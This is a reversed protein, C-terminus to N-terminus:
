SESDTIQKTLIADEMVPQSFDFVEGTKIDCWIVNNTNIYSSEFLQGKEVSVSLLSANYSHEFQITCYPTNELWASNLFRIRQSFYDKLASPTHVVDAPLNDYM